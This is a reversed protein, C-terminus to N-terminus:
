EELLARRYRALAEGLNADAAQQDTEDSEADYHAASGGAAAVVQLRAQESEDM